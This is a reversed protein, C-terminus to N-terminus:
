LFRGCCREVIGDDTFHVVLLMQMPEIKQRWESKDIHLDASSTIIYKFITDNIKTTVWVSLQHFFEPPFQNKAPFVTASSFCRRKRTKTKNKNSRLM